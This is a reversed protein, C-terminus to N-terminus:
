QQLWHAESSARGLLSRARQPNADDTQNVSVHMSKELLGAVIGLNLDDSDRFGIPLQQGLSGALIPERLRLQKGVQFVHDRLHVRLGNQDVRIGVVMAPNDFDASTMAYVHHHFLRQRYAELIGQRHLFGRARRLNM